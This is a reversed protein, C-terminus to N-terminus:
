KGLHIEVPNECLGLFRATTLVMASQRWPVLDAGADVVRSAAAERSYM